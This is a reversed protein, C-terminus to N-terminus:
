IAASLDIAPRCSRKHFLHFATLGKAKEHYPKLSRGTIDLVDSTLSVNMQSICFSKNANDRCVELHVNIVRDIQGYSSKVFASGEECRGKCKTLTICEHKHRLTDTCVWQPLTWKWRPYFPWVHKLRGRARYIGQSVASLHDASAAPPGHHTPLHSDANYRSKVAIYTNFFCFFFSTYEPWDIGHHMISKLLSWLKLSLSVCLPCVSLPFSHFHSLDRMRARSGTQSDNTNSPGSGLPPPSVFSPCVLTDVATGGVGLSIDAEAQKGQPESM